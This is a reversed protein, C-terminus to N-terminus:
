YDEVVGRVIRDYYESYPHWPYGNRDTFSDMWKKFSDPLYVFWLQPNSDINKSQCFPLWITNYFIIMEGAARYELQAYRRIYEEKNCIWLRADHEIKEFNKGNKINHLEYILGSWMEEANESNRVWVRGESKNTPYAHVANVGEPILFNNSSSEQWYILSKIDEGGMKSAAWNWITDNRDVIKLMEPRDKIAEELQNNGHIIHEASMIFAKKEIGAFKNNKWVGKKIEGNEEFLIGEGHMKAGRWNGTYKKKSIWYFVGYGHMKGNEFNGFYQEGTKWEFHGFGNKCDGSRCQGDQGSLHIVSLLFTLLILFFRKKPMKIVIQLVVDKYKSISNNQFDTYTKDRSEKKGVYFYV